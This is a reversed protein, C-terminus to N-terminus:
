GIEVGGVGGWGWGRAGFFDFIELRSENSVTIVYFYLSPIFDQHFKRKDKRRKPYIYKFKYLSEVIM